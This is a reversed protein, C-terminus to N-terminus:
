AFNKAYELLKEQFKNTKNYGCPKFVEPCLGNRYICPPVCLAFLEPAIPKLSELFLNWVQRTELSANTCTRAKSTNLISQANAVCRHNVLADQPAKKRDYEKQIDNRQTSVYHDIGTHHRVIHVSVWYPIDIWQWIFELSRIPSHESVIFKTKLESSPVKASYMRQTTLANNRAIIWDEDTPYKIFEIKM